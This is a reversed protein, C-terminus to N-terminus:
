FNKERILREEQIAYKIEGDILLCASANHGDHISLIKM